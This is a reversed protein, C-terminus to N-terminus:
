IIFISNNVSTYCGSLKDDRFVIQYLEIHNNLVTIKYLFLFMLKFYHISPLFILCVKNLRFNNLSIYVCKLFISNEPHM